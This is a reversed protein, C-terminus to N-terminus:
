DVRSKDARRREERRKKVGRLVGSIGDKERKTGKEKKM